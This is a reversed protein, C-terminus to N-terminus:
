SPPTFPVTDFAEPLESRTIPYRGNEFHFRRITSVLGGTKGDNASMAEVLYKFEEETRVAGFFDEGILERLITSLATNFEPDDNNEPMPDIRADRWSSFTWGSFEADDDAM